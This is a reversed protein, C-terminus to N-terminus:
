AAAAPKKKEDRLERRLIKGVNTKPLETRFEIQKPVKYNTLQEHCHKVIDEPTLNPDKKVVFAKVVEGTKEDPLGIVATELVGPHAAIVEEVENPYVNFGSVLIMDKKRDVIKISGDTAMVGIDGTRFFGDSTMVKATEDPRNWYGAMVQPGKACIEGPQGLPVENGDDDRISLWTSPLPLGITGTFDTSTPVNCTLVPATESLGYGEAISCGTVQKWQDAVPKQVAMGGGNSVKLKSFDIKKFDPHHLLGNYLTNVAPFTNVQYKMLEKIFGAIDRPNPILLNAGGARVALLFCCTLAFIHYLPLACVILLQDVHPPKDMVPQLWADNQLVNAVVNRHLLTAGKSVGTTGGTYQLFAVDDPGIVPRQFRKGRGAALADNFPVAGPLSFAPVMKKLRRVVLNVIVGKFGLLDGMSAIVIHKVQTHGVVQQVTHAFNELVIIAEAGSDKLQHELERPTYLPNVNVVAYGARLVASIAVPYQLVNPMMLAVRAGKALGLGQLYAGMAVSMEDLERYSIAKDMCIFARRDAFKKFSEELLEVLSQYKSPEIDAPVGAPYHKLWIREM